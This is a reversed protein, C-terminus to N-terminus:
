FHGRSFIVPPVKGAAVSQENPCLPRLVIHDRMKIELYLVEVNGYASREHAVRHWWSTVEYSDFRTVFLLPTFIGRFTRCIAIVKSKFSANGWGWLPLFMLPEKRWNAVRTGLSDLHIEFPWHYRGHFALIDCALQSDRRRRQLQCRYSWFAKIPPLALVCEM